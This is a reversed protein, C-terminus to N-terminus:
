PASAKCLDFSQYFSSSSLADAPKVEGFAKGFQTNPDPKLITAPDIPTPVTAPTLTTTSIPKLGDPPTQAGGETMAALQAEQFFLLQRQAQVISDTGSAQSVRLSLIQAPLAVLSNAIEIPIDVFGLIESSKAVCATALDGQDFGLFTRRGAFYTRDVRLSLVPSQNELMVTQTRFLNWGGRGGPDSKRYTSVHYPARPKYFVGPEPPRESPTEYRDYADDRPARYRGPDRCYAEPSVGAPNTIGDLVVCYGRARLALNAESSERRDFPDFELDVALRSASAEVLTRLGMATTVARILARVIYSAQDTANVAVVGLYPSTQWGITVATGGTTATPAAAPATTPLTNVANPDKWAGKFVQISDDALPSAFYAICYNFAPDPHRVPDINFNSASSADGAAPAYVHLYGKPLSYYGLDSDCAPRGNFPDAPGVLKSGAVGCGGLALAVCNLLSLVAARFRTSAWVIRKSLAPVSNSRRMSPRFRAGSM